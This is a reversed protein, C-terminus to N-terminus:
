VAKISKKMDEETKEHSEVVGLTHKLHEVMNTFKTINTLSKQVLNYKDIEWFGNSRWNVQRQHPFPEGEKYFYHSVVVGHGLLANEGKKVFVVDGKKMEMSIDYLARKQNMSAKLGTKKDWDAYLTKQSKYFSLHYPFNYDVGMKGTKYFVDWYASQEGASLLWYQKNEVVSPGM